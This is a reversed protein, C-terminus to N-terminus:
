TGPQPESSRLVLGIDSLLREENERRRARVHEILDQKVRDPADSELIVRVANDDDARQAQEAGTVMRAIEDLSRSSLQAARMQVETPVLVSDGNIYRHVSRRDVGLEKALKTKSWGPRTALSDILAAWENPYGHTDRM